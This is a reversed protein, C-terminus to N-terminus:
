SKVFLFNTEKLLIKNSKYNRNKNIICRYKILKELCKDYRIWKVLYKRLIKM